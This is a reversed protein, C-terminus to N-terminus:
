LQLSCPTPTPNCFCLEGWAYYVLHGLFHPVSLYPVARQAFSPFPAEEESFHGTAESYLKAPAFGRCLGRTIKPSPTTEFCYSCCSGLCPQGRQSKLSNTDLPSFHNQKEQEGRKKQYDCTGVLMHPVRMGVLYINERGCVRRHHILFFIMTRTVCPCRHAHSSKLEMWNGM